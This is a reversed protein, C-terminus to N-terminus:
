TVTCPLYVISFCNYLAHLFSVLILNTRSKHDKEFKSHNREIGKPNMIPNITLNSVERKLLKM